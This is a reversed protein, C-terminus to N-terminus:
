GSPKSHRGNSSQDRFNNYGTCNSFPSQCTEKSFLKQPTDWLKLFLLIKKKGSTNKHTRHKIDQLAVMKTQSRMSTSSFIIWSSITHTILIISDHCKVQQFPGLAAGPSATLGGARLGASRGDGSPSEEGKRGAKRAERARKYNLM